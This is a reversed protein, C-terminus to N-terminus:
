STPKEPPPMSACFDQLFRARYEALLSEVREASNSQVLLGAHHHKPIRMVVEPDTYGSLDPWQQRSLCIVSGAYMRVLEPPHYDSGRAEAVEMRAWDRWPDVGTAFHVVEAIFAGGVRAATELFLLQGDERSRIFETHTVGSRMGLAACVRTDLARLAVATDSDRHLTRTTFVGGGQMLSIPTAGYQQVSQRVVEGRWTVSDVHLVDGAVFRELLFHNRRDSLGDLARWLDDPTHIWQIGIASASTRPKLLWPAPIRDMYALLAEDNAVGTFAPVAIGARAAADRMALKDRFNRTATQGMGPLRLEERALAAAELDFEDLPVIRSLREHRAIGEVARLVQEPGADDAMTHLAAIHDHPWDAGRLKEATLLLVRAGEEAAARLFSQGKEYSAICLLTPTTAHAAHDKPLSPM